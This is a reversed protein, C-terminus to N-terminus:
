KLFQISTVIGLDRDNMKEVLRPEVAFVFSIQRGDPSASLYYYWVMDTENVKGEAVVRYIYRAADSKLNIQEAKVIKTLANGLSQRIDSQFKEESTHKGAPMTEILSANCQAILSGKDVLRLVVMQPVEQFIFWNRDHFFRIKWSASQFTLLDIKEGPDLPIEEMAEDTLVGDAPTIKRKLIVRANVDMGPSVTGVARKEYQTVDLYSIFQNKIDFLLHGKVTIETNAGSIAGKISGDIEIRAIGAEISKLECEMKAKLTAEVSTLMSISWTEPSWKDGVEVEEPPLFPIVSLPDCPTNLLDAVNRTLILEPAYIKVGSRYGEAVAKKFNNPLEIKKKEKGAEINAIAYDYNRIERLSRANRGASPLRRSRFRTQASVTLPLDIKEGDAGATQLQGKAGVELVSEIVRNEDTSEQLKQQAGIPQSFLLTIIIAILMITSQKM